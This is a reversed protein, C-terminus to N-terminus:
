ILYIYTASRSFCARLIYFNIIIPNPAVKAPAAVELDDVWDEFTRKTAGRSLGYTAIKIQDKKADLREFEEEADDAMERYDRYLQLYAKKYETENM